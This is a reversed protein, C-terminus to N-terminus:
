KFTYSLSMTLASRCRASNSRTMAARRVARSAIAPTMRSPAVCGRWFPSPDRAAIKLSVVTLWQGLDDHLDQALSRREHEEASVMAMSMMRMQNDRSVSQVMDSRALQAAENALYSDTVDTYTM